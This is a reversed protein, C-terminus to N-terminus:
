LLQVPRYIIQEHKRECLPRRKFNSYDCKWIVFLIFINGKQSEEFRFRDLAIKVAIKLEEKVCIERQTKSTKSPGTAAM